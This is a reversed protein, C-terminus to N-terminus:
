VPLHGPWNDPRHVIQEGKPNFSEQHMKLKQDGHVEGETVLAEQGSLLFQKM